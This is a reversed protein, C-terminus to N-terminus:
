AGALGAGFLHDISISSCFGLGPLSAGSCDWLHIKDIFVVGVDDSSATRFSTWYTHLGGLSRETESVVDNYIDLTHAIRSKLQCDDYM